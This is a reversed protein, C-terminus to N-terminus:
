LGVVRVDQRRMVEALHEPLRRRSWGADFGVVEDADDAGGAGLNAAAGAPQDAAGHALAVGPGILAAFLQREDDDLGAVFARVKALLREAIETDGDMTVNEGRPM